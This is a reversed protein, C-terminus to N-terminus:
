LSLRPVWKLIAEANTHSTALQIAEERLVWRYETHERPNLDVSQCNELELLFVHEQNNLTGPPYRDRWISYIEFEQSYDCNVLDSGDLGTEERLERVAAAAASEGWELSGTVSQWFDEPFTRHLMLVHGTLSYILILVSEPRKYKKDDETPKTM